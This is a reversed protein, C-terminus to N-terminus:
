YFSLLCHAGNMRLKTFNFHCDNRLQVPQCHPSPGPWSVCSLVTVRPEWAWGGVVWVGCQAGLPTGATPGPGAPQEAERGLTQRRDGPQVVAATIRPGGAPVSGCGRSNASAPLVSQPQQGQGSQNEFLQTKGEDAKTATQEPRITARGGSEVQAM